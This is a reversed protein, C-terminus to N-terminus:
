ALEKEVALWEPLTMTRTAPDWECQNKPLWVTKKNGLVFRFAAETEHVVIGESLDVLDSKGSVMDQKGLDLYRVM